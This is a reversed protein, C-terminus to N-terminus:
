ALGLDKLKNVLDNETMFSTQLFNVVFNKETLQEQEEPERRIVNAIASIQQNQGM